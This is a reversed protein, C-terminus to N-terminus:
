QMKLMYHQTAANLTSYAIYRKGDATTYNQKMSSTLNSVSTNESLNEIWQASYYFPVAFVIILLTLKKM